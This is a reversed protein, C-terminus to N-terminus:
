GDHLVDRDCTRHIDRRQRPRPRGGNRSQSQSDVGRDCRDRGIRRCADGGGPHQHGFPRRRASRPPQGDCRRSRRGGAQDRRCPAGIGARQRSRAPDAQQGIEEAQNGAGETADGRRTGEEAAGVAAGSNKRNRPTASKASGRQSRHPGAASRPSSPSRACCASGCWPQLIPQAATCTSTSPSLRRASPPSVAHPSRPSGIRRPSETSTRCCSRSRPM